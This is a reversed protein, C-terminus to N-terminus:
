SMREILEVTDESIVRAKFNNFHEPQQAISSEKSVKFTRLMSEYNTHRVGMKKNTRNNVEKAQFIKGSVPLIRVEIISDDNDDLQM